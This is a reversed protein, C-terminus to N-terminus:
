AVRPTMEQRAEEIAGRIRDAEDAPFIGWSHPYLRKMEEPTPCDDEDPVLVDVQVGSALDIVTQPKFVGNEFIAQITRM